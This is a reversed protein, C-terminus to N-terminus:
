FFLDIRFVFFHLVFFQFDGFSFLLFGFDSFLILIFYLYRLIFFFSFCWIFILSFGFNRFDNRLSVCGCLSFSLSLSISSSPSSGISHLRRGRSSTSSRVKKVLKTNGYDGEEGDSSLSFFRQLLFGLKQNKVRSLSLKRQKQSKIPNESCICLKFVVQFYLLM